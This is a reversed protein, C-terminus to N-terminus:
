WEDNIWPAIRDWALDAINDTRQKIKKASWKESNVLSEFIPLQENNNLISILKKSFNIGENAAKKIIHDLESKDKALFASYYLRKSKWPKNGVVANEKQPLITLNGISDKLYPEKYIEDDWGQQPRDPAIHEITSYVDSRWMKINLYDTEKSPKSKILQTNNKGGVRTHHQAALLLFRCLHKSHPYLGNTKIKKTWSEKDLIDIRNKSLWERLYEKFTSISVLENDLNLGLCIAQNSKKLRGGKSMISRFDSDINATSGTSGRRLVVFATLAKVANCFEQLEDKELAVYYFRALIPITLSMNMDKLFQLCLLVEDRDKVQPLQSLLLKSNWFKKKYDVINKLQHVYLLAKEPNHNVVKSYTTRLYRRQDDLSKSMKKGTLFLAFPIVIEKSENQKKVPSKFSDIYSEVKRYEEESKSGVYGNSNENEFRIIQPKFTQLATLPEGTTNLSDFIEFAYKEDETTVVTTIVSELFYNSFTILKVVRACNLEHSILKTIFRNTNEEPIKKFLDYFGKNKFDDYNPPNFDTEEDGIIENLHSDILGLNRLFAAAGEKRPDINIDFDNADEDFLYETYDNLYEGIVSRYEAEKRNRGRRDDDERVIRPFPFIKGGSVKIPGYILDHLQMISYDVEEILWEFVDESVKGDCNKLEKKLVEIIRTAILSITTLRQQGDIVSFSVNDFDQEETDEIVFILTGLFTLSNEESKRWSLGSSIDEFLRKIQDESWDYTRQYLPIRFGVGGGKTLYLEQLPMAYAKFVENKSM